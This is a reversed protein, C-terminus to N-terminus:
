RAEAPHPALMLSEISLGPGFALLMAPLRCRRALAEQLVFLVTGSSMNGLRRLVSRSAALDQADQELALAEEVADLIGPGGPHVIISRPAPRSEAVFDAISERLAAPVERTLTMAFGADTIRWTMWAAGDPMLLSRGLSLEGLCNQAGDSAEGLVAAAAGDSFLASAVQNQPDPDARCHLSCLEACVVLATAGDQAACAGIGSRLGIIAGFCGMFGIATRRTTVPLDLREILAADLGPASFGTCSVTILDTIAAASIGAADLARAAAEAALPPALQEYASMRAQTSLHMVDKPPMVACRTDIMSGAIIREWRKLTAGQLKWLGALDRAIDAQERFLPPTATGIGLLRPARARALSDSEAAAAIDPALTTV